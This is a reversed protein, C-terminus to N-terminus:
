GLSQPYTLELFRWDCASHKGVGTELLTIYLVHECSCFSCSEPCWLEQRSQQWLPVLPILCIDLTLSASDRGARVQQLSGLWNWWPVCDTKKHRFRGQSKRAELFDWDSCPAFEKGNGVLTVGPGWTQEMGEDVAWPEFGTFACPEAKTSWQEVWSM